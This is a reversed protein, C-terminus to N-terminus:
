PSVAGIRGHVNARCHVRKWGTTGGDRHVTGGIIIVTSIVILRGPHITGPLIVYDGRRDTSGNDIQRTADGNARNSAHIVIGNSTDIITGGIDVALHLVDYDRGWRSNNM